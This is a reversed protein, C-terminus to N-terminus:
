AEVEEGLEELIGRLEELAAELEDMAEQALVAPELLEDRADESEDKLWAIDLSDGRAAIWDRTFRRFRGFEGTDKRRALSQPSGLPDDGFAAEFESAIRFRRPMEASNERLRGATISLLAPVHLL